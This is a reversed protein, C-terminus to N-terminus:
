STRKGEYRYPRGAPGYVVLTADAPLFHKLFRHCSVNTVPDIGCPDKGIVITRAEGVNMTSAEKIEIHRAIDPVFGGRALGLEAAKAAAATYAPDVEGTELRTGSSLATDGGGQETLRWGRLPKGYPWPNDLKDRYGAVRATVDGARNPPSMDTRPSSPSEAQEGHEALWDGTRERAAALLEAVRDLSGAVSQLAAHAGVLDDNATGKTLETFVPAVNDTLRARAEQVAGVPLRGLAGRLRELVERLVTM